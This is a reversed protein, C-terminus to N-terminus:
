FQHHSNFSSIIRVLLKQRPSRPSGGSVKGLMSPCSSGQHCSEDIDVINSLDMGMM